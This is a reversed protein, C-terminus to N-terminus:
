SAWSKGRKIQSVTVQHLGFRAAIERQLVGARLAARIANVDARTLKAWPCAEGVM